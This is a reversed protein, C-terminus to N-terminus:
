VLKRTLQQMSFSNGGNSILVTNRWCSSSRKDCIIEWKANKKIWWISSVSMVTANTSAAIFSNAISLTKVASITVNIEESKMMAVKSGLSRFKAARRLFSRYLRKCVACWLTTDSVTDVSMSFNQQVNGTSPTLFDLHQASQFIDQLKLHRWIIFVLTASNLATRLFSPSSLKSKAGLYTSKSISNQIAIKCYLHLSSYKGITRCFM